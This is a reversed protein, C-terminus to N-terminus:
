RPTEVGHSSPSLVKRLTPEFADAMRLFGVDTPHVGDVTGEGDDGLLNECPIFFLNEVGDKQLREYSERLAKNKEVYSEKKSDVFWGSQYVINEV